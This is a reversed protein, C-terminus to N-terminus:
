FMNFIILNSLIKLFYRYGYNYIRLNRFLLIQFTNYPDFLLFRIRLTKQFTFYLLDLFFSIADNYKYIPQNLLM